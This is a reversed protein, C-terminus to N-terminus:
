LRRHLAKQTASTRTGITKGATTNQTDGALNAITNSADIEEDLTLRLLRGASAYGLKDAMRALAMYRAMEYHEVAEAAYILGDDVMMPDADALIEHAEEVLGNIAECTNEEPQHELMQFVDELRKVHNRTEGQHHLFASKLPPSTAEDAMEGLADVLQKEGYYIDRLGHLFLDMNTKIPTSMGMMNKLNDAIGM